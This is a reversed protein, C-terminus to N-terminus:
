NKLKQYIKETSIEPIFIKWKIEKNIEHRELIGKEVLMICLFDAWEVMKKNNFIDNIVFKFGKIKIEKEEEEAKVITNDLHFSRDHNVNELQMLIKTIEDLTYQFEQNKKNLLFLGGPNIFYKLKRKKGFEKFEHGWIDWMTNNMKDIFLKSNISDRLIIWMDRTAPVSLMKYRYHSKPYSKGKAKGWYNYFQAGAKFNMFLYVAAQKIFSINNQDSQLDSPLKKSKLFESIEEPLYNEFHNEIEQLNVGDFHLLDPNDYLFGRALRLSDQNQSTSFLKRNNRLTKLTLVLVTIFSAFTISLSAIDLIQSLSISQIQSTTIQTETTKGKGSTTVTTVGPPANACSTLYILLIISLMVFQITRKM